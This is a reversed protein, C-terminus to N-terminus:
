FKEPSTAVDMGKSCWWFFLSLSAPSSLKGAQRASFFFVLFINM